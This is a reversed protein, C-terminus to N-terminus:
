QPHLAIVTDLDDILPAGPLDVHLDPSDGPVNWPKNLVLESGDALFRARQVKGALGHFAIPGMPRQFVHAYLAGDEGRTYRGWDPLPMDAPGAGYISERNAEMWEGVRALVAAAEAQIVGTATPGVNLLLNGGKSVCEVLMRVVQAPTKFHHDDRTYGWHDNLTICTEWLVPRGAADRIGQAPVAMEPTTIDGLANNQTATDAHGLTLRNNLLIGPQLERVMRVLEAARWADSNKDDFSFDFWLLDIKGYNTLLERVQAHLYDVYKPLSRRTREPDDPPLDRLPHHRDITYEPHHWDLLSYYIGVKLGAARFAEVYQRFLDRHAPAHMATYTTHQSDFLCFGEHHKATLVAYQMGAHKAMAAWARPDYRTPNFERFYVDYQEDRLKHITKLWEARAPISYLGWHLFLGFRSHTFWETAASEAM